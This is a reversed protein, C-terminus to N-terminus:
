SGAGDINYACKQLMPVENEACEIVKWSFYAFCKLRTKHKAFVKM